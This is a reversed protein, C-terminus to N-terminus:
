YIYHNRIKQISTTRQQEECSCGSCLKRPCYSFLFSLLLLLLTLFYYSNSYLFNPVMM